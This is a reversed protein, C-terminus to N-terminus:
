QHRRQWTRLTAHRLGESTPDHRTVHGVQIMRGKWVVNQMGVWRIGGEHWHRGGRAGLKTWIFQEPGWNIARVIGTM